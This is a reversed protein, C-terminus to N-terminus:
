TKTCLALCDVSATLLFSLDPQSHATLNGLSTYLLCAKLQTDSLVALRAAALGNFTVSTAGTLGSGSVTAVTGVPGSTPNLSTLTLAPAVHTM